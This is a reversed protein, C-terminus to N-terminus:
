DLYLDFDVEFLIVFGCSAMSGLSDRASKATM